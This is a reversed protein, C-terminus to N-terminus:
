QDGLYWSRLENLPFCCGNPRVQLNSWEFGNMILPGAEASGCDKVWFIVQSVIHEAVWGVAFGTKIMPSVLVSCTKSISPTVLVPRTYSCFSRVSKFSLFLFPFFARASSVYLFFRTLSSSVVSNMLVRLLLSYETTSWNFFCCIYIEM